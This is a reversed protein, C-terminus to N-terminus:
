KELAKLISKAVQGALIESGERTFHVDAPRQIENLRPLAFSYLDDIALDNEKMVKIAIKNYVASDGPVRGSAGKPTPTTTAFILAAGTRQLRKVLERLNKEYEAPPVQQKGNIDRGGQENIYKLDHLGWNFHIVDWRGDGLWADLNQLGRTTPGCNTKPRQVDAKGKLAAVTAAHYGISISDGILLVRPLEEAAASAISGITLATILVFLITRRPLNM